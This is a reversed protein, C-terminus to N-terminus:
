QLNLQHKPELAPVDIQNHASQGPPPLGLLIEAGTRVMENEAVRDAEGGKARGGNDGLGSSGKIGQRVVKDQLSCSARGSTRGITM